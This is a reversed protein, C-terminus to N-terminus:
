VCVFHSASFFVGLFRLPSCFNLCDQTQNQMAWASWENFGPSYNMDVSKFSIRMVGQKVKQPIVITNYNHPLKFFVWVYLQADAM